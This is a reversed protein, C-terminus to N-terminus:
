ETIMTVFVAPGDSGCRQGHPIQPNFYVSDGVNLEIERDAFVLIVTGQTVYNFEQGAHAVLGAAEDGPDLTVLLPQMVKGTYAYALDQFHYGPFRDVVQGKGARVVQYTDLHTSGGTLLVAMDVNCVHAIHMLLSAPVDFGTEEYARYAERSVGLKDAFEELSYGCADRLGAIRQALEKFRHDPVKSSALNDLPAM